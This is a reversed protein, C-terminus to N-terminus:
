GILNKVIELYKEKNKEASLEFAYQHANNKFRWIDDYTLSKIAMASSEPSFDKTVIGLQYKNVLNAIEPSPGTVIGLRAQVFEFIKNPLANANNFNNSPLIYFGLDYQNITKVIESYPIPNLISINQSKKAMKQLKEYYKVSLPKLYLFLHYKNNLLNFTEIMLEIKRSEFAYGCHVVKIIGDKSNNVPSLNDFYNSANTIVYPRVKFNKWYEKAIIDGVTIMSDVFPIYKECLFTKYRQFFFRWYFEEEFERPFYEHADFLIKADNKIKLALPLTDIDNAIILDFKKDKLKYFVESFDYKSWYYKEFKGLKLLIARRVKDLTSETNIKVRIFDVGDIEPNEYGVATVDYRDKLFCIHRYVRPDNKIDSFVIMLIKQM